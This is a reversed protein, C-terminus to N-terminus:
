LLLQKLIAMKNSDYSPWSYTTNIFLLSQLTSSIKCYVLPVQIWDWVKQLSHATTPM